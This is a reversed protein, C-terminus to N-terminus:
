YYIELKGIKIRLSKNTQPTTSIQKPKSINNDVSNVSDVSPQNIKKNKNAFALGKEAENAMKDINLSTLPVGAKKLKSISSVTTFISGFVSIFATLIISAVFCIFVGMLLIAILKEM